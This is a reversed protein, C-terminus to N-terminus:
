DYEPNLSEIFEDTVLNFFVKKEVEHAESIRKLVNNKSFSIDIEDYTDSDFVSGSYQIGKIEIQTANFVQLNTRFKDFAFTTTFSSQNIEFPFNEIKFQLNEFINTQDFFDIYRVGVRTINNIFDLEEFDRMIKEIVKFYSEWGRYPKPHVISIAKAGINVQFNENVFKYHPAFELNKDQNRIAEPLQLIPLKEYNPFDVILKNYVLGFIAESPLKTTFRIEVVSELIPDPTIRKPIKLEKKM